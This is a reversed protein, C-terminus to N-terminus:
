FTALCTINYSSQVDNKNSKYKKFSQLAWPNVLLKTINFEQYNFFIVFFTQFTIFYVFKIYNEEFKM